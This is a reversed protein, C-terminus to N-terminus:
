QQPPCPCPCQGSHCPPPPCICNTPCCVTGWPYPWPGCNLCPYAPRDPGTEAQFRRTDNYGWAVDYDSWRYAQVRYRPGDTQPQCGGLWILALLLIALSIFRNLM